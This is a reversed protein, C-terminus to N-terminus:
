WIQHPVIGLLHINTVKVMKQSLFVKIITYIKGMLTPYICFLVFVFQQMNSFWIGTTESFLLM